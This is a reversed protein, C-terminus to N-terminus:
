KEVGGIKKINENISIYEASLMKFLFMMSSGQMVPIYEAPVYTSSIIVFLIFFFETFKKFVGTRMKNSSIEKMKYSYYIGTLTDLLISILYLLCISKM